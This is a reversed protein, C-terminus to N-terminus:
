LRCVLNERSQLESTHEESRATPIRGTPISLRANRRRRPSARIPIRRKADAPPRGNGAKGTLRKPPLPFAPIRGGSTARRLSRSSIPLADLLAPPTRSTPAPP